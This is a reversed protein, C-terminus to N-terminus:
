IQHFAIASIDRNISGQVEDTLLAATLEAKWGGTGVGTETGNLTGWDCQAVETGSGLIMGLHFGPLVCSSSYASM